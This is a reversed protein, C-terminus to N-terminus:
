IKRFSKVLMELRTASEQYDYKKLKDQATQVTQRYYTEDTLLKKGLAVLDDVATDPTAALAPFLDTQGDSNAGLSPTGVAACDVQVRGRTLTYDTNIVLMKKALHPLHERWPQFPVVEYQSDKLASFDMPIDPIQTVQITYDPFDKQLHRAVQFGKAIAPRDTVGAAFIIKDKRERPQWFQAAFRAPYIQPLYAVPTSDLSEYWDKTAEVVTLFLDCANMYAVFNQKAKANSELHSRLIGYPQTPVGLIFLRPLERKLRKVFATIEHANSIQHVVLLTDFRKLYDLSYNQPWSGTVKKVSRKFLSRTNILKTLPIHEGSLASVYCGFSTPDIVRAPDELYNPKNPTHRWIEGTKSTYEVVAFRMIM